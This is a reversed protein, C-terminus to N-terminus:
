LAEINDLIDQWSSPPFPLFFFDTEDNNAKSSHRGNHLKNALLKHDLFERLQTRFATESSALFQDRALSFYQHFSLGTAEDIETTSNVSSSSDKFSAKYYDFCHRIFLSYIRRSSITLNTLVTMAASMQTVLSNKGHTAVGKLMAELSYLEKTYPIFTTLDHFLWQSKDILASSWLIPAQIHDMTALLRIGLSKASAALSFYFEQFKEQRAYMGDLNFILLLLRKSLYPELSKRVREKERKTLLDFMCALKDAVRSPASTKLHDRFIADIILDASLDTHTGDIVLVHYQSAILQSGAYNKLINQKSGYGHFCLHFGQSLQFTWIPSLFNRAKNMCQIESLHFNSAHDIGGSCSNSDSPGQVSPRYIHQMLLAHSDKLSTVDFTDFYAVENQAEDDDSRQGSDQLIDKEHAEDFADTLTRGRIASSLNSANKPRGFPSGTKMASGFMFFSKFPRSPTSPGDDITTGNLSATLQNSMVIKQFNPKIPSGPCESFLHYNQVM